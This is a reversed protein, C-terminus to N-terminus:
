PFPNTQSVPFYYTIGSITFRAIDDEVTVTTGTPPFPPDTTYIPISTQFERTIDRKFHIRQPEVVTRVEDTITNQAQIDVWFYGQALVVTDISVLTVTADSGDVEIGAGSAKQAVAFEDADEQRRKITCILFWDANPEFAEGEWEMPFVLQKSDGLYSTLVSSAM